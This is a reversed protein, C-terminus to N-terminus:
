KKKTNTKKQSSFNNQKKSPNYKKISTKKKQAFDSKKNKTTKNNSTKDNKSKANNKIPKNNKPKSTNKAKNIDQKTKTTTKFTYNHNTIVNIKKNMLKEIDKIFLKEENSVLAFAEGSQGARGTRGIRHIYSEPINPIDYNIVYSVDNIDLGRAAVDTAILTNIKGDKFDKLIRIRKNQSKDGHIAAVKFKYNKLFKELKDAGRKTRTFIISAHNKKDEMLDLLLFQKNEKNVYYLSQEVSDVASSVPAVSIEKPKNLIQKALKTIENPITASFMLTQRQKPLFSIIKNIDHIFGMDLMNDAEDLVFYKVDNLKIYGQDVLDILRGPTAILIDLGQQISRVQSGQKVGGYIVDCRLNLYKAYHKFNDNIQMALERTPALVLVQIKKLRELKNLIPLAFAATKGTGTQACALLDNGENILPISKDQIPTPTQYHMKEIAKIIEPKLNYQEFKM